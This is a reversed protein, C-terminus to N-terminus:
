NRPETAFTPVIESIAQLVAAFAPRKFVGASMAVFIQRNFGPKLPVVRLAPDDRVSVLALMPLVTIVYGTRVLELTAGINRCSAVIRPSFGAAACEKLLFSKYTNAARNIAWHEYALDALEIERHTSLRHGVSLVTAYQDQIVPRFYLSEALAEARVSDDVFALDVQKAAVATLGEAPELEDFTLNLDPYRALLLRFAGPVLTTAVSGFASLRVEGSVSGRAAALDSEIDNVLAFLEATRAVLNEGEVTLKVGRGSREFLVAGVEKELLSLQQSVAPRTQNVTEAVRSITGLLALERLLYLRRLDLMRRLMSSLFASPM